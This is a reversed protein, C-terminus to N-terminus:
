LKLAYNHTIIDKILGGKSERNEVDISYSTNPGAFFSCDSVIWNDSGRVSLKVVPRQEESLFSRSDFRCSNITTYHGMIVNTLGSVSIEKLRSSNGMVVILPKDFEMNSFSKSEPIQLIYYDGKDTIWDSKNYALRVLPETYKTLLTGAVSAVGVKLFGRRSLEIM